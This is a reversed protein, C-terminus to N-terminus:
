ADIVDSELPLPQLLPVVIVGDVTGDSAIIDLAQEYRETDADGLLDLPNEVNGYGPIVERLEERTSAEFGALDMGRKELADAALVGFGGGNTVVAINSGDLPDNYALARAYDFLEQTQEAELVGSQRFAGRYVDYSGALSGTHSSVAEAGASFKGGKIAIIPMDRTVQKATELFDRGDSVGEMYVAIADTEEDEDLYAILDTETVDGQPPRRLKYSPLFLTDVGSYADWVGLCNPGVVRTDSGDIIEQLEQARDEGEGGIERFGSTIVILADVDAEVSERIVGTAADPPVTVVGLDVDGPVDLVSSYADLGLIEDAEPNVEGAFRNEVFNRLVAHGVKDGDRSAGIVAVSDPSFLAELNTTDTM